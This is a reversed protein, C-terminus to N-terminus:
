PRLFNLSMLGLIDVNEGPNGSNTNQHCWFSLISLVMNRCYWHSEPRTDNIIGSINTIGFPVLQYWERIYDSM